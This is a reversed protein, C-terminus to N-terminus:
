SATTGIILLGENNRQNIVNSYQHSGGPSPSSGRFRSHTADVENMATTTTNTRNLQYVTSQQHSFESVLCDAISFRKYM